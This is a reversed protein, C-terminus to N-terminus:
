RPSWARPGRAADVEAQSARGTAVLGAYIVERWIDSLPMGYQEAEERIRIYLDGDIASQAKPGIAPRGIVVESSALTNTAM